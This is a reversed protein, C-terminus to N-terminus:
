VKIVNSLITNIAFEIIFLLKTWDNQKYNVFM